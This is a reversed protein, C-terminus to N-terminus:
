TGRSRTRWARSRSSRRTHPRKRRTRTSRSQALALQRNGALLNLQFATYLLQGSIIGGIIAAQPFLLVAQEHAEQELSIFEVLAEHGGDQTVGILEGTAPNVDYWATTAVGNLM